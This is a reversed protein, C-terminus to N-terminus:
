IPGTLHIQTKSCETMVFKLQAHGAMWLPWPDPRRDSPVEQNVARMPSLYWIQKVRDLHQAIVSQIGVAKVFRNEPYYRYISLLLCLCDNLATKSLRPPTPTPNTACSSDVQGLQTFTFWEGSGGEEVERLREEQDEVLSQLNSILKEKEHM